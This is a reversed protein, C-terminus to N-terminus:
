HRLNYSKRIILILLPLGIVSLVISVPIQIPYILTNGLFDAWVVATAGLLIIKPLAHQLSMDRLVLQPVILGVFGIIGTFSILIACMISSVVLMIYMLNPHVGVSQAITGSAMITTERSFYITLMTCVITIPVVTYVVRYDANNLSGFMYNMIAISKSPKIMVLAYLASSFFFNILLGFLVMGTKRQLPFLVETLMIILFLTLLSMFVSSTIVWVSNFGFVIMLGSGFSAGSALGLSFSDALPNRFITQFVAGSVTLTIGTIIALILRPLRVDTILVPTLPHFFDFDPAFFLHCLCGIILTSSIFRKRM